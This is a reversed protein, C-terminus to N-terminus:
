NEIFSNADYKLVLSMFFISIQVTHMAPITITRSNSGDGVTSEGGAPFVSLSLAAFFAAILAMCWGGVVVGAPGATYEV